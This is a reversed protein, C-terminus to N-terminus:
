RNNSTDANGVAERQLEKLIKAMNKVTGDKDYITKRAISSKRVKEAQKRLMAESLSLM